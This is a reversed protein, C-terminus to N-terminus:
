KVVELYGNEFLVDQLKNFMKVADDYSLANFKQINGLLEEFESFDDGQLQPRLLRYIALIASKYNKLHEIDARALAELNVAQLYLNLIFEKM